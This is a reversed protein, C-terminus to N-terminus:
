HLANGARADEVRRKRRHLAARANLILVHQVTAHGLVQELSGAATLAARRHRIEVAECPAAHAHPTGRLHSVGERLARAAAGRRGEVRGAKRGAVPEARAAVRAGPPPKDDVNDLCRYLLGAGVKGGAALASGAARRLADDSEAARAEVGVQGARGDRAGLGIKASRGGRDWAAAAGARQADVAGSRGCRTRHTGMTAKHHHAAIAFVRVIRDFDRVCRAFLDAHLATAARRADKYTQRGRM